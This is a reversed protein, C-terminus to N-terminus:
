ELNTFLSKSVKIQPCKSLIHDNQTRMSASFAFSRTMSRKLKTSGQICIILKTSPLFMYITRSYIVVRRTQLMKYNFIGNLLDQSDLLKMLWTQIVFADEGDQLYLMVRDDEPQPEDKLFM